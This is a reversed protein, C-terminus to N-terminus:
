LIAWYDLVIYGSLRVVVSPFSGFHPCFSILNKLFIQAFIAYLSFVVSSSISMVCLFSIVGNSPTYQTFGESSGVLLDFAM